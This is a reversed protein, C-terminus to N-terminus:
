ENMGTKYFNQQMVYIYMRVCIYMYTYVGVRIYTYIYLYWRWVCVYLTHMCVHVGAHACTQTRTHPYTHTHTHIYTHTHTHTHPLLVLWWACLPLSRYSQRHICKIKRLLARYSTTRKHFSVTLIGPPSSEYSAQHRMETEVFSGSITPSKQPFHGIFILCGIVRRWRTLWRNPRPSGKVHVHLTMHLAYMYYSARIKLYTIHVDLSVPPYMHLDPSIRICHLTCMYHWTRHTYTM